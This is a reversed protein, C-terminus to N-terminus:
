GFGAAHIVRVGEAADMVFYQFGDARFVDPEVVHSMKEGSQGELVAYVHFSERSGQAVVGCAESEVGIGM